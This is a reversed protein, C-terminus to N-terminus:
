TDVGQAEAVDNHEAAAVGAVQREAVTREIGHDEVADELPHALGGVEPGGRVVEQAGVDPLEVADQPGAARDEDTDLIAVAQLVEEAHGLFMDSLAVHGKKGTSQRVDVQLMRLAAVVPHAGVGEAAERPQQFMGAESGDLPVDRERVVADGLADGQEGRAGRQAVREHEGLPPAGAAGRHLQGYTEPKEGLDDM